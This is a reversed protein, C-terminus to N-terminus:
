IPNTHQAGTIFVFRSMQRTIFVFRSMHRPLYAQEEKGFAMLAGGLVFSRAKVTDNRLHVPYAQGWKVHAIRYRPCKKAAMSLIRMGTTSHLMSFSLNLTLHKPNEISRHGPRRICQAGAAFHNSTSRKVKSRGKKAKAYQQWIHSVFSILIRNIAALYPGFTWNHMGFLVLHIRNTETIFHGTILALHSWSYGMRKTRYLTVSILIRQMDAM